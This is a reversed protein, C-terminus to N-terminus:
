LALRLSANWRSWAAIKSNEALSVGKRVENKLRTKRLQGRRIPISSSLANPWATPTSISAVFPCEAM